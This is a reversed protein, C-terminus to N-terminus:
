RDCESRHGQDAEQLEAALVEAEAQLVEELSPADDKSEEALDGEAEQEAVDEEINETVNAQRFQSRPRLSSPRSTTSSASTFRSSTSAASSISSAPGKNFMRRITLPRKDLRRYLPDSEHLDRFLRLIESEIAGYDESGQHSTDLLQKRLPDLGMKQRLWWGLEGDNITVREAKLDAVLSRFRTCFESVREAPKRALDLYFAQRLEEM